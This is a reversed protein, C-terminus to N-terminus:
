LKGPKRGTTENAGRHFDDDEPGGGGTRRTRAPDHTEPSPRRIMAATMDLLPAVLTAPHTVPALHHTQVRRVPWGREEARAAAAAYPPSLQVYGAPGAWDVDPRAEALFATAVEPEEDVVSARLADDPVLAALVAADFWLHWPPLRSGRARARLQDVLDAPATEEWSQGPTPLGADLYVLAVVPFGAAAFAPLLPGAGSHGVLVLPATAATPPLAAVFEALLRRHVPEETVAARMDPVLALVGAADLADALPQLSAPGLFPSHVLVVTHTTMAM